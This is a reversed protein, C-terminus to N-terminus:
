AFTKLGKIRMFNYLAAEKINEDEHNVFKRLIDISVKYNKVLSLLVQYDKDKSLLECTEDTLDHRKAIEARVLQSKDKALKIIAEQELIPNKAAAIKNDVTEEKLTLKQLLGQMNLLDKPSFENM